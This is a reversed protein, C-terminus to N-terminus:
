DKSPWSVTASFSRAVEVRRRLSALQPLGCLLCWHLPRLHERDPQVERQLAQALAFLTLGQHLVCEDQSEDRDGSNGSKLCEAAADVPDEVLDDGVEAASGPRFSSRTASPAGLPPETFAGAGSRCERGRPSNPRSRRSSPPCARTSNASTASGSINIRRPIM